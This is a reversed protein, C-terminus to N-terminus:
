LAEYVQSTHLESWNGNFVPLAAICVCPTKDLPAFPAPWGEKGQSTEKERLISKSFHKTHLHKSNWWKTYWCVKTDFFCLLLLEEQIGFSGTCLPLIAKYLDSMVIINM